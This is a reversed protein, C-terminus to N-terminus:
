GQEILRHKEHMLQNKQEIVQQTQLKLSTEIKWIQDKLNRISDQADNIKTQVFWDVLLGDWFYDAFVMFAGLDIDLNAHHKLYSLEKRLKSLNHKVLRAKRKAEDLNSHKIATTVMGGGIMDIVGWDAASDLSQVLDDISWLTETVAEQAEQLREGQAALKEEKSEIILLEKATKGQQRKLLAEKKELLELYRKEVYNLQSIQERFAAIERHIEEVLQQHAEYEQKAALYKPRQKELKKQKTGLVSSTLSELSFNELKKLAREEQRFADALKRTNNEINQLQKKAAEIQKELAKIFKKDQITRQLEKELTENM